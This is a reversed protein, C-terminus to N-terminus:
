ATRAPRKGRTVVELKPKATAPKPHYTAINFRKDRGDLLGANGIAAGLRAAIKGKASTPSGPGGARRRREFAIASAVLDAVQLSDNTQSNLCVASVVSTAGFRRNVAGRVVDEFATGRPTTITDMLVSVLERRNICGFLLQAAVDAHGRWRQTVRAFPDFQSVDVVCGVVQADSREFMDIVDYYLPLSGDNATNFRFEGYFQHRDRIDQLARGFHGVRRVKMGAVTFCDRAKTGSEDLFITSTPYPLPVDVHGGVSGAM